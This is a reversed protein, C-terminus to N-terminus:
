QPREVRGVSILSSLQREVRIQERTASIAKPYLASGIRVRYDGSRTEYGTKELSGSQVAALTLDDGNVLMSGDRRLWCLRDAPLPAHSSDVPKRKAHDCGLDFPSRM